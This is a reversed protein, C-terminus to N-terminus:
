APGGALGVSAFIPLIRGPTKGTAVLVADQLAAKPRIQSSAVLTRLDRFEPTYFSVVFRRFPEKLRFLLENAMLKGAGLDDGFAFGGPIALIAYLEDLSSHLVRNRRLRGVPNGNEPEVGIPVVGSPCCQVM